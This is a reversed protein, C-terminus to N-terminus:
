RTAKRGEAPPSQCSFSTAEEASGSGQYQAHAPYACLPRTRGPWPTMAPATAQISQPVKGNEVWDVLAAFADFQSTSPGGGCHNMGPVLYLRAFDQTREIGGNAASLAEYWRRHYQTSFVPDAQGSYVILKSGRKRFKGYDTRSTGMFDMASEKYPAERAFIKPADKDMDYSLMYAVFADGFNATAPKGLPNATTITTSKALDSGATASNPPTTFVFPMAAGGLTVSISSNGPLPFNPAIPGIKWQRWGTAGVGPDWLWDAYLAEGKSNRAGGFVKALATVQKESLVASGAPGLTAPDFKCEFPKFVMGDAVGDLADCQALVATAVAALETDTFSSALDPNGFPTSSRAARAFAQSDWAEAVGAKPLDIGPNGAVIGDFYDPYRQSFMLGERGGESCGVFYSRQAARGYYKKVLTKAVETVRAPGAYGFASRAQPDFGFQAGGAVASTNTVSDHGSDTTVVAYGDRISPADANGVMGDMGGGGSYYFRGNWHTPLRLRFKSAYTQGDVASVRSDIAGMVECHEPVTDTAPNLQTRSLTTNKLAQALAPACAKSTASDTAALGRQGLLAGAVSATLLLLRKM